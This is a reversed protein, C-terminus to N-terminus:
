LFAMLFDYFSSSYIEAFVSFVLTFSFISSLDLFDFFFRYKKFIRTNSAFTLFILFVKLPKFSYNYAFNVGSKKLRNQTSHTESQAFFAEILHVSSNLFFFVSPFM